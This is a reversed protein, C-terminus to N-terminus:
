ANSLEKQMRILKQMHEEYAHILPYNRHPEMYGMERDILRQTEGMAEVIRRHKEQNQM